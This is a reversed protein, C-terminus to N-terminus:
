GLGSWTFRSACGGGGRQGGGRDGAVGQSRLWPGPRRRAMPAGTRRLVGTGAEGGRRSLLLGDSDPRNGARAGLRIERVHPAAPDGGARRQGQAAGRTLRRHPAKCDPPSVPPRAPPAPTAAAVPLTCPRAAATDCHAIALGRAASLSAPSASRARTQGGARAAVGRAAGRWADAAAGSTPPPMEEASRAPPQPLPAWYPTATNRSPESGETLNLARILVYLPTQTARLMLLDEHLPVCVRNM